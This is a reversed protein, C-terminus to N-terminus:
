SVEQTHTRPRGSFWGAPPRVHHEAAVTGHPRGGAGVGRARHPESQVDHAPPPEHEKRGISWDEDDSGYVPEKGLTLHNASHQKEPM